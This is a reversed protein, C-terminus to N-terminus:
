PRNWPDKIVANGQLYGGNKWNAAEPQGAPRRVLAELGQETSPFNFNDLKYLNLANVLTQVDQKARAQRAQGPADAVNLTVVTALIALIAVVVIVELLTFGRQDLRSRALMRAGALRADAPPLQM